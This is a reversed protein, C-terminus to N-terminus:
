RLPTLSWTVPVARSSTSEAAMSPGSGGPSHSICTRMYPPACCARVRTVPDGSFQVPITASQELRSVTGQHDSLPSSPIQTSGRENGSDITRTEGPVVTM